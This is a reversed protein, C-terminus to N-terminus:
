AASTGWGARFRSKQLRKKKPQALRVVATALMRMGNRNDKGNLSHVAFFDVKRLCSKCALMGGAFGLQRMASTM